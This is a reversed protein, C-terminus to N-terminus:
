PQRWARGLHDLFMPTSASSQIVGITNMIQEKQLKDLRRLYREEERWSSRAYAAWQPLQLIVSGAEKRDRSQLPVSM